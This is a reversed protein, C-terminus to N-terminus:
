GQLKVALKHLDPLTHVQTVTSPHTISATAAQSDEPAAASTCAATRTRAPEETRFSLWPSNLCKSGTSMVTHTVVTFYSVQCPLDKCTPCSTVGTSSRDLDKFIVEEGQIVLQRICGARLSLRCM